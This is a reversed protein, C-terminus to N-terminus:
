ESSAGNAYEGDTFGNLCDWRWYTGHSHLGGCLSHVKIGQITKPKGLTHKFLSATHIFKHPWDLWAGGESLTYMEPKLKPYYISM